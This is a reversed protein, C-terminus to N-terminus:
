SPRHHACITRSGMGAFLGAVFVTTMATQLAPRALLPELPLNPVFLLLHVFAWASACAGFALVAAVRNARHVLGIARGALAAAAFSGLVFWPQLPQYRGRAALWSPDDLILLQNVLSAAVVAQFGLLALLSVAVLATATTRGPDARWASVPRMVVAMLAQRWFWAQGRVHAAEILDGTLPENDPICCELLAVALRPPQRAIM